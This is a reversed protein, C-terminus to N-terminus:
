SMVVALSFVTHWASHIVDYVGFTIGGRLLGEIDEPETIPEPLADTINDPYSFSAYLADAVPSLYAMLTYPLCVLGGTNGSRLLLLYAAYM